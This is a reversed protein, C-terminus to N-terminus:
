RAPRKFLYTTGDNILGAYEWGKRGLENFPKLMERNKGAGGVPYIEYEWAGTTSPSVPPGVVIAGGTIPESLAPKPEPLTKPGEGQALVLSAAFAILAVVTFSALRRM